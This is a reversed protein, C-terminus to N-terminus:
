IYFSNIYKTPLDERYIHSDNSLQIIKPVVWGTKEPFHIVTMGSHQIDFRAAFEPYPIDTVCSLFALGFGQHAFLAIRKTNIEECYYANKKADHRYGLSLFFADSERQIREIGEKYDRKFMPHRYWEKGLARVDEAAMRLVTKEDHFLWRRRGNEDIVTMDRWAYSENCWDLETPTIHLMECTPQATQKARTSSSVYIADLGHMALRKGLAEAQRQGLPTLCDPDYIPDGHRIYYFLM